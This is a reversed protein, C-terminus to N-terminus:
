SRRGPRIAPPAPHARDYDRRFDRYVVHKYAMYIVPASPSEGRNLAAVGAPGGITDTGTQTLVSERRTLRAPVEDPAYGAPTYVTGGSHYQMETGKISAVQIAAAGIATAAALPALAPGVVPIVVTSAYAAVAAQYGQVLATAIAFAKWAAFARRAGDSNGAASMHEAAAQAADALVGLGQVAVGVIADHAARADAQIRNAAEVAAAQEKEMLAIREISQRAEVTALAQSAAARDRSAMGLARVNALELEQRRLLEDMPALTAQYATEQISTLQELASVRAMEAAEAERTAEAAQRSADTTANTAKTSRTKAEDTRELASRLDKQRQAEDLVTDNLTQLRGNLTETKAAFGLLGLTTDQIWDTMEGGLAVDFAGLPTYKPLATLKRATDAWLGTSEIGKQIEEREQRQAKALDIVARQALLSLRISRAQEESYQGTEVALDITADELRRLSPTLSDAAARQTKLLDEALKVERAYQVWAFAAAGGVIAAVGLAAVGAAGMATVVGKIGGALAGAVQAVQGLEPSVVSLAGGLESITRKYGRMQSNAGALSAQAKTGAASATQAARTAEKVSRNLEAAMARAEKGTIGPLSAMEAKFRDLRAVIDIGVVENSM